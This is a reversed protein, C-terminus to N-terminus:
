QPLTILAAVDYAWKEDDFASIDLMSFRLYDEPATEWHFLYRCEERGRIERLNQFFSDNNM